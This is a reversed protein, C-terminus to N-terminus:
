NEPSGDRMERKRMPMSDILAFIKEPETFNNQDLKVTGDKGILILRFGEPGVNFRTKLQQNFKDNGASKQLDIIVIDRESIDNEVTGFSDTQKMYHLNGPHDSTIIIVRKKWKLDSLTDQAFIGDGMLMFLFSSLVVLKM